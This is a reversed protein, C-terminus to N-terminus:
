ESAVERSQFEGCWEDPGTQPFETTHHLHISSWQRIVAGLSRNDPILTPPYRRCSKVVGGQHHAWFRCSECREDAM